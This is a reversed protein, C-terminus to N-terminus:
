RWNVLWKIIYGFIDDFFVLNLVFHLTVWRFSVSGSLCSFITSSWRFSIRSPSRMPRSAPSTSTATWFTCIEKTTAWSWRAAAMAVCQFQRSRFVNSALMRSVIFDSWCCCMMDANCIFHLIPISHLRFTFLVFLHCICCIGTFMGKCYIFHCNIIVCM